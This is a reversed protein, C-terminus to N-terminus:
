LFLDTGNHDTMCINEICNGMHSFAMLKFYFKTANMLAVIAM